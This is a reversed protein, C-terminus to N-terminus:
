EIGAGELLDGRSAKASKYTAPPSRAPKPHQYLKFVSERDEEEGWPGAGPRRAESLGFRDQIPLVAM